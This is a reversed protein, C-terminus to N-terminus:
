SLTHVVALYHHEPSPWLPATIFHKHLVQCEKSIFCNKKDLLIVKNLELDGWSVGLKLLLLQLSKLPGQGWYKPSVSGRNTEQSSVPPPLHLYVPVLFM